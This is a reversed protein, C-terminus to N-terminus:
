CELPGGMPMICYRNRGAKKAAYLAADATSMLSTADTPSHAYAIGISTTVMLKGGHELCIPVRMAEVLKRAITEAAAPIALDEVLVVFEDGGLRAVLDISRVNQLLRQAFVCLVADGAAHGHTDNIGKFHDVDLCILALPHEHRQLRALALTLRENFQHRNAVGTLTDVRALRELESRSEELAHEAAIRRSVNRGAYIIDFEGVRDDSPIPRTVAEIWVYHGDRHRVRYIDTRAEGTAIVGAMAEAQRDRDDPHVLDWRSGLMEAPEWGLMDRASPSVYLREGDARMRVVVDHSSDALMRYRHESERLRATLRKREAMALAVPITMLCGGAIYLQLLAIRGSDGIGQVFSLPGHGMSTALSGVVALLMVGVAVGVFRHQVALLLLPPYTLFLVPYRSSFVAAAVVTLLLLGGAFGWRKGPATFLKRGERHIVLTSTGVVVMGVVHAAFWGLLNSLFPGGRLSAALMAAFLGSVACATLTSATAIGGLRLWGRPDSVHPVLRRIIGAVILVEVIDCVSIAFSYLASDGVLVHAVFDAAFGSAVYGPWLRTARSLLWGTFVGNGIWVAALEGPGRALELSLWATAGVILAMVLRDAWLRQPLPPHREMAAERRSHVIKVEDTETVKSVETVSRAEPGAAAAPAPCRMRDDMAAPIASRKTSTSLRQAHADACTDLGYSAATGCALMWGATM